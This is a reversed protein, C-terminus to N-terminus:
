GRSGPLVVTRASGSVVPNWPWHLMTPLPSLIERQMEGAAYILASELWNRTHSHHEADERFATVLIHVDILIM